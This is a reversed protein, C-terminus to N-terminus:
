KDNNKCIELFTFNLKNFLFSIPQILIDRKLRNGNIIRNILWKMM